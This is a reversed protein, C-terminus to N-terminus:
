NTKNLDEYNLTLETEAEVKSSTYVEKENLYCNPQTSHRLFHVDPAIKDAFVAVLTDNPIAKLTTLCLTFEKKEDSM